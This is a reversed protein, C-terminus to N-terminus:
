TQTTTSQTTATTAKNNSGDCITENCIDGLARDAAMEINDKNNHNNNNNNHNNNGGFEVGGVDSAVNARCDLFSAVVLMSRLSTTICSTSENESVVGMASTNGLMRCYMFQWLVATCAFGSRVM